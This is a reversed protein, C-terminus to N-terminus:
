GGGIFRKGSVKTGYNDSPDASLHGPSGPEHGGSAQYQQGASGQTGPSGVGAHAALARRVATPRSRPSGAFIPASVVPACLRPKSSGRMTAAASQRRKSQVGTHLRGGAKGGVLRGSGAAAPRRRARAGASTHTPSSRRRPLASRGRPMATPSPTHAVHSSPLGGPPTAPRMACPVHRWHRDDVLRSYLSELVAALPDDGTFMPLAGAWQKALPVWMSVFGAFSLQPTAREPHGRAAGPRSVDDLWDQEAVHAAHEWDGGAPAGGGITAQLNIHMARYKALTLGTDLSEVGSEHPHPLVAGHASVGPHTVAVKWLMELVARLRPTVAAPMSSGVSPTKAVDAM